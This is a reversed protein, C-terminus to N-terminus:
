PASPRDPPVIIVPRRAHYALHHSTSGLMAAPFSGTGRSGVVIADADVEEALGTLVIVPHGDGFIMRHKVSSGSLAACWEDEFRRRLEERHGEAPRVDGATEHALLGVAYVAIVEADLGQALEIAFALARVGNDSGDVGVVLREVGM